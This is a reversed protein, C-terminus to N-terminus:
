EAGTVTLVASKPLTPKAAADLMWAAVDARPIQAQGVLKTPIVVKGTAPGDNLGTPRVACVDLGSAFFVDEMRQLTPLVFRMATIAIFIAFVGPLLERSDGVGSSSVFLLRKVGAQKMAAVIAASSRDLIGADEPKAWPALSKLKLGLSSLVVEAGAFAGALAAVDDLSARVVHVGPSDPMTSSPRVVVVVDHGAAKAQSVLHKGIGGSAGLIVVKM